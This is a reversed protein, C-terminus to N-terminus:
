HPISKSQIHGEGLEVRRVEGRNGTASGVDPRVAAARGVHLHHHHHLGQRCGDFVHLLWLVVVHHHHQKRHQHIAASREQADHRKRRQCARQETHTRSGLPTAVMYMMVVIRIPRTTPASAFSTMGPLSGPPIMTVIRSPMAPEKMAPTSPWESPQYRASWPGPMMADIM